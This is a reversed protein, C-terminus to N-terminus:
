RTSLPYSEYTRKYSSHFFSRVLTIDLFWFFGLSLPCIDLSIGLDFTLTFVNNEQRIKANPNTVEIPM